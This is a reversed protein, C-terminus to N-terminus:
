VQDRRAGDIARGPLVCTADAMGLLYCAWADKSGVFVGMLRYVDTLHSKVTCPSISLRWAIQVGTMGRCRMRLVELQRPSLKPMRDM